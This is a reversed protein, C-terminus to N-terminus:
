ITGNDDGGDDNNDLDNDNNLDNNDNSLDNNNLTTVGIEQKIKEVEILVQEDTLEPRSLRVKSEISIAQARALTEVASAMQGLDPILSDGFEVTPREPQIRSGFNLQDIQLMLYMLDEIPSKWYARKKSQTIFSRRERINLATGSEVSGKINLGFSQPSYGASSIIRNMLELCTNMHEDTRIAFQINTIGVQSSSLPDIDFPTFVEKDIDYVFDGSPLKQLFSEPVMIRGKGLRVDRMWSSYTEDLADMLGELGSLDSQGYPSGRHKRNPKVNPIYKVLLDNIGTLIEDQLGSTEPISGLGVRMGLFDDSGRYLGYEIKGITHNELLRYVTNEKKGEEERVIKYFTVEKLIGWQFIPIANDPQVISLIPYDVFDTDWNIKLYVGGIASAIEAAQLLVDNINARQIIDNLRDQTQENSVNFKPAEAFLMNASMSAIDGAVPVHLITRREEYVQKQWFKQRPAVSNYYNESFFDGAIYNPPALLSGYFLALQNSDGSYWASHEAYDSYIPDELPFKLNTTPLM